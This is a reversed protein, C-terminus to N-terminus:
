IFDRSSSHSRSISGDIINELEEIQKPTISKAALSVSLREMAQRVQLLQVVENRRRFLRLVAENMSSLVVADKAIYTGSGSKVEVIGNSELSRLAERVSARSVDLMKGLEKESPLKDGPKLHGELILGKIQEVAQEFLRVPKARRWSFKSVAASFKEAM